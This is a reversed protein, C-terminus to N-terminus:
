DEHRLMLTLVPAATDGPGCHLKFEHAKNAITVTFFILDSQKAKAQSIACRALWCIDHLTGELDAYLDAKVGAQIISWVTSTCAVPHSWFTRIAPYRSLNVLVGDELAQARSYSYIVDGFVSDNSNRM